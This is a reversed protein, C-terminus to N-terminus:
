EFQEKIKPRTFLYILVLAIIIDIIYCILASKWALMNIKPIMSVPVVGQEIRWILVRKFIIVPHKWYVTVITFFSAFIICKRFIERRFLVGIGTIFLFIRLSISFVYRALILRAPLPYLKATYSNFDFAPFGQLSYLIVIISLIIIEKSMKDKAVIGAETMKKGKSGFM